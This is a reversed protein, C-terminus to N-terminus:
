EDLSYNLQITKYDTEATIIKETQGLHQKGLWILLAANGKRAAKFQYRRLSEKGEARAKNYTDSFEQNTKLKEYFTDRCIGLLPCMEEVTCHISSLRDLLDLDIKSEPRGVKAM